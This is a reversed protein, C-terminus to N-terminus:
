GIMRIVADRKKAFKKGKPLLRKVEKLLLAKDRRDEVVGIIM